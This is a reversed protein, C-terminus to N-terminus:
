RLRDCIDSEFMIQVNSDISVSTVGPLNRKM